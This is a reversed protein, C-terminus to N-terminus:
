DRRQVLLIGDRIPLLVSSLDAKSKIFNAVERLAVTDPDKENLDAVRGSWLTNDLAIVGNPSLLELAKIFYNLYNGKDADILVFDFPGKLKAFSELAPGLILKIKKGHPSKNWFEQGVKTTEPNIDLTIVEGGNSLREAMFLASYGTFSGVELIRKAKISQIIFGLTSGVMPGILMESHEVNNQTYEFLEDCIKSPVTSKSLCYDEIKKDSILM